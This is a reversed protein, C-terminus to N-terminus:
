KGAQQRHRLAASPNLRTSVPREQVPMVHLLLSPASNTGTHASPTSRDSFAIPSRISCQSRRHSLLLSPSAARLVLYQLCYLRDHRGVITTGLSFGNVNGTSSSIYLTLIPVGLRRPLGNVLARSSRRSPHSVMHANRSCTVISDDLKHRARVLCVPGCPLCLGRM